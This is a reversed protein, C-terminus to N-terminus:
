YKTWRQANWTIHPGRIQRMSRVHDRRFIEVLIDTVRADVRKGIHVWPVSYLVKGLHVHCDPAVRPALWRALASPSL